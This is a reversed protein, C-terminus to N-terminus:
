KRLTSLWLAIVGFAVSVNLSCKAGRMPLRITLDCLELVEPDVGCLENGVIIALPKEPLSLGPHWLLSGETELALLFFDRKKLSQIEQLADPVYSWSLVREAGLATKIVKPNQPTPTIGCLFFHSFGAAEGTRLMSGVNWASRINELVAVCPPQIRRITREYNDLELPRKARLQLKEGCSPCFDRKELAPFRLKCRVCCYFYAERM